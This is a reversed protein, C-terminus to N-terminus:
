EFHTFKKQAIKIKHQNKFITTTVDIRKPDSSGKPLVVIKLENKGEKIYQKLNVNYRYFYQSDKLSFSELNKFDYDKFWNNKQNTTDRSELSMVEISSRELQKETLILTSVDSNNTIQLRIKPKTNGQLYIMLPINNTEKTEIVLKESGKISEVTLCVGAFLVVFITMIFVFLSPVVNIKSLNIKISSDVKNLIRLKYLRSLIKKRYFISIILLLVIIILTVYKLSIYPLLYVCIDLYAITCMVAYFCRKLWLFLEKYSDEAKKLKLQEESKDDYYIFTQLEYYLYRSVCLIIISSIAVTSVSLIYSVDFYMSVSVQETFTKYWAKVFTKFIFFLTGFLVLIIGLRTSRETIRKDDENKM